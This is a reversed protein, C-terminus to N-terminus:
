LSTNNGQLWISYSRGDTLRCTGTNAEQTMDNAAGLFINESNPTVNYCSGGNLYNAAPSYGQNGSFWISDAAQASSVTIMFLAAFAFAISIKAIKHNM